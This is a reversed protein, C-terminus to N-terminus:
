LDPTFLLVRDEITLALHDRGGPSRRIVTALVDTAPRDGWAESVSPLGRVLRGHGDYLALSERTACAWLHQPGDPLWQVPRATPIYAPQLSWLRDGIGSFLTLIGFNAWRTHVLVQEGPMDARLNCVQQGQAHGVRHVSRTRGTLPDTVYVGASGAVLFAIPDRAPDESFHGVAVADYHGAGRIEDMEHALDHESIV